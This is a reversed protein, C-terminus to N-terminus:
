PIPKAHPETRAAWGDEEALANYKVFDAIQNETPDAEVWARYYLGALVSAADAMRGAICVKGKEARLEGSKELEYLPEVADFSREILAITAEWVSDSRIQAMPTRYQELGALNLAHLAVIEGDIHRHFGPNTTYNHPNESVWGHHHITSHLPQAADGVFHSLQGMECFVNARAADMQHARAPDALSEIIRATNMSSVLKAYHEGIAYPLFGIKDQDFAVVGRREPASAVDEGPQTTTRILADVYQYRLRPITRLTLGHETLLEADLYHDGNNEHALAPTRTGRWRDPENSQYAAIAASDANRVWMPVDDPLLSVALRTITRHGPASWGLALTIPVLAAVAAILARSTKPNRLM